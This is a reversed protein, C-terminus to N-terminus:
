RFIRAEPPIFSFHWLWALRPSHVGRTWGLVLVPDSDRVKGALIAWEIFKSQTQWLNKLEDFTLAARTATSGVGVEKLVHDIDLVM